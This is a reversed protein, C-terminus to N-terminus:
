IEELDRRNSFQVLKVKKGIQQGIGQAIPKLSNVRSMDAGVLPLWIRQGGEGEMSQIGIVGEDDPGSDEVIFAYMQDIRPM